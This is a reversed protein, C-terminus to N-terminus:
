HEFEQVKFKFFYLNIENEPIKLLECAKSIEDQQWSRKNNTKSSISKASLNMSEAFKKKTGFVEVIRGNLKSYDYLM